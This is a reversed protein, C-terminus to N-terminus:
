PTPPEVAGLQQMLGYTDALLWREAILGDEVSVFAMNPIEVRHGTPELGMFEGAHRARFTLRQAVTGDAAVADEVTVSLDEFAAQIAASTEKLASRGEIEGLPGHERVDPACIEDIVDTEGATAVEAPYRNAIRKAEHPDTPMTDGSHSWPSAPM